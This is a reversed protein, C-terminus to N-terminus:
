QCRLYSQFYDGYAEQQAAELARRDVLEPLITGPFIQAPVLTSIDPISIGMASENENSMSLNAAFLNACDLNAGALATERMRANTFNAHSANAGAFRVGTMEASRFSANALDSQVFDADTLVTYSFDASRLDVDSFDAYPLWAYDATLNNNFQVLLGDLSRGYFYALHLFSLDIPHSCFSADSRCDSSQNALTAEIYLELLAYIQERLIRDEDDIGTDSVRDQLAIIKSRALRMAGEAYRDPEAGILTRLIAAGAESAALDDGLIFESATAFQEGEAIDTATGRADQTSTYDFLYTFLAITGSVALGFTAVIQAETKVTELKHKQSDLNGSRGTRFRVISYIVFWVVAGVIFVFLTANLMNLM